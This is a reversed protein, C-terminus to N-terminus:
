RPLVPSTRSDQSTYISWFFPHLIKSYAYRKAVMIVIDYIHQPVQHINLLSIKPDKLRQQVWFLLFTLRQVSPNRSGYFPPHCLPLLPVYRTVYKEWKRHPQVVPNDIPVPCHVHVRQVWMCMVRVLFPLLSLTTNGGSPVLTNLNSTALHIAFFFNGISWSWTVKM